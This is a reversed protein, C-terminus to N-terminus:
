RRAGAGADVPDGDPEGEGPTSRRFSFRGHGVYSIVTIVVVLLAQAGLRPVGVAVLVPLLVANLTISVLYVSVFRGLDRLVHGRVRFVLRRYLAFAALIAVAYSGLLPVLSGAIPQGADDLARGATAELAAFLAFAFVTNFGGVLLFRVRRDGLLGRLRVLPRPAPM